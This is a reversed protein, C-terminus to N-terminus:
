GELRRLVAKKAYEVLTLLGVTSAWQYAQDYAWGECGAVGGVIGGVVVTQLAKKPDFDEVTSSKAYGLLSTIAGAVAGALVRWALELLGVM